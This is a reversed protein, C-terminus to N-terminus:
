ERPYFLQSTANVVWGLRGGLNFFSYLRIEVGGRHRCPLNYTFKVKQILPRRVTKIIM